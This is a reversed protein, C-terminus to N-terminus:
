KKAYGEDDTGSHMIELCRCGNHTSSDRNIPRPLIAYRESPGEAIYRDMPSQNQGTRAKTPPNQLIPGHYPCALAKELPVTHPVHQMISATPTQAGEGQLDQHGIFTPYAFGNDAGPRQPESGFTKTVGHQTYAHTATSFTRNGSQTRQDLTERKATPSSASPQNSSEIKRHSPFDTSSYSSFTDIM